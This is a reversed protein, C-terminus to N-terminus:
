RVTLLLASVSINAMTNGMAEKVVRYIGGRVFM